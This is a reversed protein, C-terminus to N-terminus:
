QAVSLASVIAVVVGILIGLGLFTLMLRRFGLASDNALYGVVVGRAVGGAGM